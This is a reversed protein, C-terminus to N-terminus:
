LAKKAQDKGALQKSEQQKGILTSMDSLFREGGEGNLHVTDYFDADTFNGDKQLNLMPIGAEATTQAVCDIYSKYLQPPMLKLNDATLPMAVVYLKIDKNKCLDVVAKFCQKQKDFQGQNFTKYRRGYEDISKAWIDNRNGGMLFGALPDNNTGGFGGSAIQSGNGAGHKNKMVRAVVKEASDKFKIQYRGRKRYLYVSRNLLFDGQEDFTSFFLKGLRPLDSIEVVEDFVSTLALGGTTDDMFDRPAVGYVLAKPKINKDAIFKDIVLYTDSVFQGATALSVVPTKQGEQGQGLLDELRKSQHHLMCDQYFYGHKVDASWLPAIILSSGVFVVPSKGAKDNLQGEAQRLAKQITDQGLSAKAKPGKLSASAPIAINIAMFILFAALARSLKL